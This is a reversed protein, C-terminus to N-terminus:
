FTNWDNRFALNRYATCWIDHDDANQNDDDANQNDDDANQNDVYKQSVNKRVMTVITTVICLSCNLRSM